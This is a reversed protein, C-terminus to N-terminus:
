KTCIHLSIKLVEGRTPIENIINVPGPRARQGQMIHHDTYVSGGESRGGQTSSRHRMVNVRLDFSPTKGPDPINYKVEAQHFSLVLLKTKRIVYKMHLLFLLYLM